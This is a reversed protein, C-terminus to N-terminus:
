FHGSVFADLTTGMQIKDCMCFQGTDIGLNIMVINNKSQTKIYSREKEFNKKINMCDQTQKSRNCSTENSFGRYFIVLRSTPGVVRFM